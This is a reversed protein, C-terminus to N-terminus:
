FVLDELSNAFISFVMDEFISTFDLPLVNELTLVM